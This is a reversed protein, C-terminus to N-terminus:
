NALGGVTRTISGDRETPEGCNAHCSGESGFFLFNKGDSSKVVGLQTDSWDFGTPGVIMPPDAKAGAKQRQAATAVIEVATRVPHCVNTVAAPTVAAPSDNQGYARQAIGLCALIALVSALKIGVFRSRTMKVGTEVCKVPCIAM